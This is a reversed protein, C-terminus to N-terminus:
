RTMAASGASGSADGGPYMLWLKGLELARPLNQFEARKASHIKM